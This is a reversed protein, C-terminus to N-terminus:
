AERDISVAASGHQADESVQMGQLSMMADM